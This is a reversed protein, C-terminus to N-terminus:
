NLDDDKEGAQSIRWLHARLNLFETGMEDRLFVLPFLDSDLVWSPVKSIPGIYSPDAMTIGYTDEIVTMHHLYDGPEGILQLGRPGHDTTLVGVAHRGSVGIRTMAGKPVSVIVVVPDSHYEPPLVRYWDSDRTNM